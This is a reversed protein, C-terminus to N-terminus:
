LSTHLCTISCVRKGPECKWWKDADLHSPDPDNSKFQKHVIYKTKCTGWGSPAGRDKCCQMEQTCPMSICIDKRAATVFYGPRCQEWQATNYSSYWNQVYCDQKAYRDQGADCCEAKTVCNVHKSEDVSSSVAHTGEMKAPAWCRDVYLGTMRASPHFYTAVRRFDKVTLSSSCM